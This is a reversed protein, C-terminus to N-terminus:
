EIVKVLLTIAWALLGGGFALALVLAAAGRAELSLVKRDRSLRVTVVTPDADRACGIRALSRQRPGRKDRPDAADTEGSKARPM